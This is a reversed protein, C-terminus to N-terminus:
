PKTTDDKKELLAQLEAKEEELKKIMALMDPIDRLSDFQIRSSTFISDVTAKYYRDFIASPSKDRPQSM